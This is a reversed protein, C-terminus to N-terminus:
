QVIWKADVILIASSNSSKIISKAVIFRVIINQWCNVESSNDKRIRYTYTNLISPHWLKLYILLCLSFYIIESKEEQSSNMLFTFSDFVFASLDM